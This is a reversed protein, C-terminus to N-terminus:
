IFVRYFDIYIKIVRYLIYIFNSVGYKTYPIIKGEIYPTKLSLYDLDVPRSASKLCDRRLAASARQLPYPTNAM